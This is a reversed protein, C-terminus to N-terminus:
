RNPEMYLGEGSKFGLPGDAGRSSAARIDIRRQDYDDHHRQCLMLSFETCHRQEPQMGRTRFRRKEGMHSWQSPGFCDAVIPVDALRCYGDREVCDRRVIAAVTREGRQRRRKVRAIPEPKQLM